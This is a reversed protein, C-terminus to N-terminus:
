GEAGPKGKGRNGRREGRHEQRNQQRGRHRGRAAKMVKHLEKWTLDEKQSLEDLKKLMQAQAAQIKAKAMDPASDLLALLKDRRKEEWSMDFYCWNVALRNEKIVGHKTKIPVPYQVLLRQELMEAVERPYKQVINDGLKVIIEPM